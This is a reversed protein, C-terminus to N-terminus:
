DSPEGAEPGEGKVVHKVSAATSLPMRNAGVGGGRKRGPVHMGHHHEMSKEKVHHHPEHVKGGRARKAGHHKPKEGEGHHVRGGKKLHEGESKEEAEKAANSGGGAEWDPKVSGGKARKHEHHRARSM